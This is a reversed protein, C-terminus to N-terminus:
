FKYGPFQKAIMERLQESAEKGVVTAAYDPDNRFIWEITEIFTRRTWVENEILIPFYDDALSLVGDFVTFVVDDYEQLKLSSRGMRFELSYKTVPQGDMHLARTKVTKRADISDLYERITHRESDTLMDLIKFVQALDV